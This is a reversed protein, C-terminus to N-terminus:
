TRAVQLYYDRMRANVIVLIKRLLAVLAVMKKKGAAILKQYYEEIFHKMLINEISSLIGRLGPTGHWM